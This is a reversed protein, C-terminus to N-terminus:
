DEIVIARFFRLVNDEIWMRASREIRTSIFLKTNHAENLEGSKGKIWMRAIREIRTSIFLKTNHAENLEGSKGKIWM